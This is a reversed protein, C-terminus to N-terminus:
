FLAAIRNLDSQIAGATVERGAGPGRIVLPNDKYWKSEIAFINDCPLLNALAHHDSLAEISVTASGDKNLRAVYRLVKQERQAKELREFLANNILEGKALFDDLSVDKLEVPVLSEVKVQTPEIKLGAERALIVLKRMVDSGDLDNRPDPETLGQQWALDVLETFPVDGNYQQFLWSLTGSFIGSLAIIEDGSERLDRVTHNIPLGAGVTANYLWHRGTKTFADIVAQYEDSPASGAVKNASILHIGQEAIKSYQQSLEPSATVDLVVVDDYGQIAGIKEIWDFNDYPVAEDDFKEVISGSDLGDFDFWNRHRDIVGILSFQMGHRKELHRKQQTFLSLWQSGINGHGCLVLGVRKQAQFLHTHMAKIISTTDVKRLIAVLSLGSESECVFELPRNKLQHYFGHSHIANSTVGAGVAAVMSYGEKLKIEAHVASNQLVDLSENVVESTYALLLTYQDDQVELALPQLQSRTLLSLVEQKAREFDQGRGFGLQILYVDELSTVIKAGRGSALVREIRTSGSEPQYSCRLSLDLASQAVPQLTRSHLVPAALRALESAEDLRLLPLLCADEVKRPDASFVGAVDSWITVRSVEALAGIMTASYDSGNRGLLVTEGKQDRAMFGTIVIRGHPHLAIQDKFLPWSLARDVEPQCGREARLFSRSDLPIAQLDIQNLYASLLRSSWVEGHGLIDAQQVETLPAHLQGIAILEKHLLELLPEANEASLLESILEQQYKRLSELIEHALRGDKLLGDFWELIRNTTNGAASVVVLDHESSYEKLITAVRRYCEPDALSSGGFKHLQRPVLGTM